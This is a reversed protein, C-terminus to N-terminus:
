ALFSPQLELTPPLYSVPPHRTGVLVGRGGAAAGRGADGEGQAHTRVQVDVEM